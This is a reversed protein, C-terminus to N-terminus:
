RNLFLHDLKILIPLPNWVVPICSQKNTRVEDRLNQHLSQKELWVLYPAEELIYAPEVVRLVELDVAENDSISQYSKECVM